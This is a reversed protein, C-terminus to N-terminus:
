QQRAEERRRALKYTGNVELFEDPIGDVVDLEVTGRILLIRPPHSETDVTLAVAPNARLSALKPANKPTCM